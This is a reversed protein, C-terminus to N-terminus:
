REYVLDGRGRKWSAREEQFEGEVELSVTTSQIQDLSIFFEHKLYM